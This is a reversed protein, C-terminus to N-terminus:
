SLMLLINSFKCRREKNVPKGVWLRIEFHKSDIKKFDQLIHKLKLLYQAEANALDIALMCLWCCSVTLLKITMDWEKKSVESLNACTEINAVLLM